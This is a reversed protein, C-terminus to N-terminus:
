HVQTCYRRGVAPMPPTITALALATGGAALGAAQSLFLRRSPVVFATTSNNPNAQAM